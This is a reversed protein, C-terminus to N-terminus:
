CPVVLGWLDSCVKCCQERVHQRGVLQLAAAQNYVFIHMVQVDFPMQPRVLLHWLVALRTVAADNFVHMAVAHLCVLVGDDGSGCLGAAGSQIFFEQLGKSFGAFCCNGAFGGRHWRVRKGGFFRWCHVPWSVLLVVNVVRLSVAFPSNALM